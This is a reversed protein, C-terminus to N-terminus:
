VPRFFRFFAETCASTHTSSRSQNVPEVGYADFGPFRVMAATPDGALMKDRELAILSAGQFANSANFEHTTLVYADQGAGDTWIGMHPYDGFNPWNFEYRAYTGFPDSTTSVAVCQAFPSSTVFQSMVWRQARPDWIALPDGSNTTECKGGFGTFFSNGPRPTLTNPDPVGTVKDFAQWSSNVWQIFHTDSVDGNTDPPLCGCGSTTSSIAEFTLDITPAPVGSGRTQMRSYDPVFSSTRATPKLLVNPVEFPEQETGMPSAPPMTRLIDRLPASIDARAAHMVTPLIEPASATPKTVTVPAASAGFAACVAAGLAAPLFRSLVM